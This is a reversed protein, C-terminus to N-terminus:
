KPVCRFSAVGLAADVYQPVREYQACHEKAPPWAEAIDGSYIVDVSASDGDRIFPHPGNCGFLPLALLGGALALAIASITNPRHM